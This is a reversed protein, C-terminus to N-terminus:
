KDVDRWNFRPEVLRGNRLRVTGEVRQKWSAEAHFPKAGRHKQLALAGDALPQMPHFDYADKWAHTVEGTIHITDGRRVAKFSGDSSLDSRGHALAFDRDGVTLEKAFGSWGSDRKWNDKFRLTAGDRLTRLKQASQNGSDGLFTKNEFRETNLREGARIPEIARAEDRSLTKTGGTGDLFRELNDAAMSHGRRRLGDVKARYNREIQDLGPPENPKSPPDTRAGAGTNEVSGTERGKTTIPSAESAETAALAMTAKRNGPAEGNRWDIGDRDWARLTEAMRRIAPLTAAFFNGLDTGARM